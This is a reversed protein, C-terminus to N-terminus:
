GTLDAIVNIVRDQHRGGPHVSGAVLRGDKVLVVVLEDGSTDLALIVGLAAARGCLCRPAPTARRGTAARAVGRRRRAGPAATRAALRCNSAVGSNSIGWLTPRVRPGM